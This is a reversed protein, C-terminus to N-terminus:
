MYRRICKELAQGLKWIDEFSNYLPVPAFRIVNPNRWDCFVGEKMLSSHLKEGLGHAIVSIQCGRQTPLTPTVIELFINKTKIRHNIDNLVFELYGTLEQSKHILPAMGGAEMFIDLSAKHAAMSLVPANSIQWGEATKIPDFHASLKFRTNKNHGWWGGLRPLKNNRAHKQHIYVGAVAGPGSNLYKYSCWAAFDVEWKHLKLDVNGTAHALDFGAFAGIKHAAKTIGSLDFYQGSLFNVGGLFVLAIEEKHKEITELIRSESIIYEGKEPTLPLLVVDPNYGRLQIHTQLAYIDSPFAISEYLIKLKKGTPQYFTALLLHLNVSLQNMCIVESPLAGVLRSLPTAFMEHYSYWPHKGHFHGESALNAWDNLETKIYDSVTKPQLGLSNGVFYLVEKGYHQPFFFKKRFKKMKDNKDKERAFKLTNIYTM